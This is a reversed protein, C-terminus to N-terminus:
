VTLLDHLGESLSISPQWGLEHMIRASSYCASDLLRSVVESNLPVQRGLVRGLRDGVKGGARLLGHPVSWTQRPLGLAARIADYIERGSCTSGHAVIYTKGDAKPHGAVLLIAAVLDDV